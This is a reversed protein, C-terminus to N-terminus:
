KKSKGFVGAVLNPTLEKFEAPSIKISFNHDGSNIIIKPEKLLGRDIFLPLKWLSGFPPIAGIKTGKLNKKMWVEGLFNIKKAKALKKLKIIDLNKNAAILVLAPTKDLKVALTKGIIKSPVKLTASKDYATYVTKHQIEEYRIKNEKLHKIIKKPIAM